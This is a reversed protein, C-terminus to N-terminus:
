KDGGKEMMGKSAIDILEPNDHINGIIEWESINRVDGMPYTAFNFRLCFGGHHFVVERYYRLSSGKREHAVIDGEYIENGKCDKYGTYQGISSPAVEEVGDSNVSAVPWIAFSGKTDQILDGFIWEGNDIRKGRFKIPRM